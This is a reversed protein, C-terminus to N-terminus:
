HMCSQTIEIYARPRFFRDWMAVWTLYAYSIRSLGCSALKKYKTQDKIQRVKSKEREREREIKRERERGREREIEVQMGNFITAHITIVTNM